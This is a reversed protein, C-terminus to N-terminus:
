SYIRPIYEYVAFTTRVQSRLQGGLADLKGEDEESQALSRQLMAYRETLSDQEAQGGGLVVTSM